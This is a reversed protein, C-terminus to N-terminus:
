KEINYGNPNMSQWRWTDECMKQIDYKTQWGLEDKAKQPNSYVEALDGMRRPGITYNVKKNTATEFANILELVTYGHGNGLNYVHVGKSLLVKEIAKIHGKALDVVHIYDRICTGDKTNYDDGFVTLQALKGLAVKSIFPMINNPIENPDEGILGSEHAGIPNFYRLLTINWGPDSAYMDKLIEEIIYKTRGYPNTVNGTSMEETYPCENFGYVTASSSFVIKKVNFEKMVKCLVITGSVNNDYYLLPNECSGGVSKLGAFHIVADIKNEKFIKQLGEHDRIDCDYSKVSKGTITNVRNLAEKVSNSYNDLVVVDHGSNLLEVCTHTGIYGTGGTALITSM